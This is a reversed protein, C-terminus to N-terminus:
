GDVSASVATSLSFKGATADGNFWSTVAFALREWHVDAPRISHSAGDFELYRFGEARRRRAVQSRTHSYPIRTDATGHCVLLPVDVEFACPGLDTDRLSNLIARGLTVSTGPKEVVGREHINSRVYENNYRPWMSLRPRMAPSIYAIRDLSLQRRLALGVVTAGLSFGVASLSVSAGPIHTRAWAVVQDFDAVHEEISTSHFTGESEGIGRWDYMVCDYGDASLRGAIAPFLNNEHKSGAFGHVFVVAGRAPSASAYRIDASLRVGDSVRIGVNELVGSADPQYARAELTALSRSHPTDQEVPLSPVAKWRITREARRWHIM